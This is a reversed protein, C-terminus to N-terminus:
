RAGEYGAKMDGYWARGQELRGNALTLATYTRALAVRADMGAAIKPPAVPALWDPAAPLVVPSPKPSAASCAAFTM